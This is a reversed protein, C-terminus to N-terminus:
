TDQRRWSEQRTLDLDGSPIWQQVDPGELAEGEMGGFADYAYPSSDSDWYGHTLRQADIDRVDYFIGHSPNSAARLM